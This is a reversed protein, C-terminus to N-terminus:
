NGILTVLLNGYGVRRGSKDRTEDSRANYSGKLSGFKDYIEWNGDGRKKLTGIRSGFKDYLTKEM